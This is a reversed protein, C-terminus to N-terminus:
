GGSYKFTVRAVTKDMGRQVEHVEGGGSCRKSEFFLVIGDHTTSPEMGYVEITKRDWEDLTPSAEFAVGELTLDPRSLVNEAVVFMVYVQLNIVCYIVEIEHCFYM